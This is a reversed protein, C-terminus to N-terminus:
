RGVIENRAAKALFASRTLKRASAATDIAALIGPSPAAM